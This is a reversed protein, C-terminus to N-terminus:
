LKPELEIDIKGDRTRWIIRGYQLSRAVTAGNSRLKAAIATILDEVRQQEREM